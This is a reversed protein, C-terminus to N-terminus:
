FWMEYLYSLSLMRPLYPGLFFHEVTSLVIFPGFPVALKGDAPRPEDTTSVPVEDPKDDSTESVPETDNPQDFIEGPSKLWDSGLLVAGAAALIGQLSAAFLIFILSPWGLWAGVMAMLTVDGGGMGELGRLAYYAFYIGLVLLGAALMGVLSESPTVPPWFRYMAGPPVFWEILWPAALGLGIGPLTFEHPIIYHDLDVFAIVILLALFAFYLFFPLLIATVPLTAPDHAEAFHRAAVKWWLGAAALGTLAELLTYRAPIPADCHRCRARLVLWSLIPINDYWRIRSRCSPCRSPPSIISDGAPVRYVVVNLFSGVIAGFVFVVATLTWFLTTM